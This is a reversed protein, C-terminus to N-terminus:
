PARGCGYLMTGEFTVTATSEFREGSVTDNCPIADIVVVLEQTGVFSRYTTQTGAVTPARYPFETPSAGAETALQISELSVELLWNPANGHARFTAGRRRAEATQAAGPNSTCAAFTRERIEFTALGNKSSYSVGGEAYRAGSAAAVQPLTVVEAGLAKPSFLTAEGPVTRVAFTVGNGCDFIFRRSGDAAAPPADAAAPPARVDAAAPERARETRAVRAPPTAQPVQTEDAPVALALRPPSDDHSEERPARAPTLFQVALVIAALALAGVTLRKTSM